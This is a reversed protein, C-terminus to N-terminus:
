ARRERERIADKAPVFRDAPGTCYSAFAAGAACGTISEVIPAASRALATSSSRTARPAPSPPPTKLPGPAVSIREPSVNEFFSAIPPLPPFPPFPPMARPPSPALSVPAPAPM